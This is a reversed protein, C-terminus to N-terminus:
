CRTLIDEGDGDSCKGCESNESGGTWLRGWTVAVPTGAVVMAGIAMLGWINQLITKYKHRASVFDATFVHGQKIMMEFTM